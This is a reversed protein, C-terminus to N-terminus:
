DIAYNLTQPEGVKVFYVTDGKFLDTLEINAGEFQSISRDHNVYGFRSQLDDNLYRERYHKKGVPQSVLWAQYAAENFRTIETSFDLSIKDVENRVNGLYNKDFQYWKGEDLYYNDQTDVYDIFNVFPKVYVRAGDDQAEVDANLLAQYDGNFFKVVISRLDDLSLKEDVQFHSKGVRCMFEYQDVFLFAVGSLQLQSIEIMCNGQKIDDILKANLQQRKSPDKVAVSTPIEKKVPLLLANELQMCLKHAVKMSFEKKRLHVSQGCSINSGWKSADAPTGKLYNVAEGAEFAVDNTSTYTEISKTRVGGFDKSNKTKFSTLVRSAIQIGFEFDSFRSVFFHSSGFTIAYVHDLFQVIVVASYNQTAYDPLTFHKKLEKVWKVGRKAPNQTFYLDCTFSVGDDNEVKSDLLTMGKSELFTSLNSYQQSYVKFFNFGPM